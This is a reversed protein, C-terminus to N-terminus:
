LPRHTRGFLWGLAGSVERALGGAGKKADAAARAFENCSPHNDSM